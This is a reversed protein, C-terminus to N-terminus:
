RQQLRSGTLWVFSHILRQVPQSECHPPMDRKVNLGNAGKRFGSGERWALLSFARRGVYTCHAVYQSSPERQRALVRACGACPGQQMLAGDCVTCGAWTLTLGVAHM